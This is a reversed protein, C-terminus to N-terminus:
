FLDESDNLDLKKISAPREPSMHYNSSLLSVKQRIKVLLNQNKQSLPEAIPFRELAVKLSVLAEHLGKRSTNSTIDEIKVLERLKSTVFGLIM